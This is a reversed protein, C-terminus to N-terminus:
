SFRKASSVCCLEFVKCFRDTISEICFTKEAHSRANRGFETQLQKDNMLKEAESLFLEREKPEVVIGSSTKSVMSAAANDKPMSLLLARGACLYALVKSPVSFESAEPELLAVLINASAFALPTEKFSGFPELILNDINRTLKESRLWDAGLGQSRVVVVGNKNSVRVALDALLSPDHKMSLTGSYLFVSKGVLGRSRSWDNDQSMEPLEAIPGWNEIVDTKNPDIKWEDLVVRFKEAIAIIRDSRRLLKREMSLYYDGIVSGIVKLKRSLIRKAALGIIDQLWLIQRADVSASARHIITLADLPTNASLVLDPKHFRILSAVKRGYEQEQWRRRIFSYKNLPKVLQIPCVIMRSLSAEDLQFDAQPTTSLSACYTHIVEFGRKALQQSLQVPFPYGGFDNLLIKM